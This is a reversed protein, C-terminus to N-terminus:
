DAIGGVRGIHRAANGGSVGSDFHFLQDAFGNDQVEFGEALM